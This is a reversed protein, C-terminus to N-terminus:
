FFIFRPFIYQSFTKTSYAGHEDTVTAVPYYIGARQPLGNIECDLGSDDKRDLSFKCEGQSLGPALNTIQMRIQDGDTDIARIVGKYQRGVYGTKLRKTSFSPAANFGPTPLPTPTSIPVGSPTPAGTPTPTPGWSPTPRPSVTPTPFVSTGPTPTSIPTVSPIIGNRFPLLVWGEFSVEAPSTVSGTIFGYNGFYAQGLPTRPVPNYFYIWDGPNLGNYIRMESTWWSTNDAHFYMFLRMEVGNEQWIAELTTYTPNGPDSRVNVTGEDAHFYLDNVRITFSDAKMYVTDTVWTIPYKISVPTPTATTPPTIPTAYPLRPAKPALTMVLGVPLSILLLLLTIVSVKQSNNLHKFVKFRSNLNTGLKPFISTEGIFQSSEEHPLKNGDMM